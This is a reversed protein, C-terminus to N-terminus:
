KRHSFKVNTAQGQVHLLLLKVIQEFFVLTTTSDAVDFHHRRFELIGLRCKRKNHEIVM